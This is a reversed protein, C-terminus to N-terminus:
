YARTACDESQFHQAFNQTQDTHPFDNPRSTLVAVAVVAAAVAQGTEVALSDSKADDELDTGSCSDSPVGHDSDAGGCSDSPQEVDSGSSDSATGLTENGGALNAQKYKISTNQAHNELRWTAAGVIM